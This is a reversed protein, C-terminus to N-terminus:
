IDVVLSNIIDLRGDVQAYQRFEAPLQAGPQLEIIAHTTGSTRASQVTAERDLKYSRVQSNAANPRVRSGSQRHRGGEAAMANISFASALAFLIVPAIARRSGWVAKRRIENQRVFKMNSPDPHLPM